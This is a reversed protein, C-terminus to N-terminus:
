KCRFRLYARDDFSRYGEYCGKTALHLRICLPDERLICSLRAESHELTGCLEPYGDTALVVESEPPVPIIHVDPEYVPFGDVVAYTLNQRHTREQLAAYIVSRGPDSPQRFREESAGQRLAQTIHASRQAALQREEASGFTHLHGNVMAQCDGVICIQHLHLSYIAVSCTLRQEPHKRLHPMSCGHSAYEGRITETLFALCAPWTAEPSLGTLAKSLVQMAYRGNRLPPHLMHVTKSTCGDLVALFHPTVVIGDECEIDTCKGSLHSEVVQIESANSM